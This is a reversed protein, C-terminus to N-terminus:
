TALWRGRSFLLAIGGLILFIPWLQGIPLNLLFIVVLAILVFAGMLQGIAEGSRGARLSAYGRELAFFAPILIFVAWWNRIEQGLYNRTLFILGLGILVLGPIWAGYRTSPQSPTTDSM